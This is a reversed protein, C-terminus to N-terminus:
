SQNPLVTWVGDVWGKVPEPRPPEPRAPGIRAETVAACIREVSEPPFGFETLAWQLDANDNLLRVLGLSPKDRM